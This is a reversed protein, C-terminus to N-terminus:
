ILGPMVMFNQLGSIYFIDMLNFGQAKGRSTRSSLVMFQGAEPPWTREEM